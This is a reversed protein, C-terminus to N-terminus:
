RTAVLRAIPAGMSIAGDVGTRDGAKFSRIALQLAPIGDVGSSHLVRAMWGADGRSRVLANLAEVMTGGDFAMEFPPKKFNASM